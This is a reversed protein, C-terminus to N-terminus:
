GNLLAILFKIFYIGAFNNFFYLIKFIPIVIVLVM